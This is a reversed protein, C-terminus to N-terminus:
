PRGREVSIAYQHNRTRHVHIERVARGHRRIVDAVARPVVTGVKGGPMAKSMRVHSGTRGSVVFGYQKSLIKIV